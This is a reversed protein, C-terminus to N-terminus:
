SRLHNGHGHPIGPPAAVPMAFPASITIDMLPILPFPNIGPLHHTRLLEIRRHFLGLGADILHLRPLRHIQAKRRVEQHLVRVGPALLAPLHHPFPLIQLKEEQCLPDLPKGGTHGSVPAVPILIYRHSTGNFILLHCVIPKRNELFQRNLM